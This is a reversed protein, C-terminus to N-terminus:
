RIMTKEWSARYAALYAEKTLQEPLSAHLVAKKEIVSSMVDALAQADGIPVILGNGGHKIAEGAIGVDTMIVPCGAAEAEIVTRGYGEYDSTLVFVDATKYYSALDDTWSEFIVNSLPSHRTALLKLKAEEPGSGVIILGAKPHKKVTEAMAALAMPINKEKTFRSAMLAVFDFQPYKTRLDIKVPADKIKQVDVFIPLVAIRSAHIKFCSAILSKKIRESVVRIGSARPILFKAIFVRIRNLLSERMFYPSFLDTHVQLQLSVHYRRAVLWGVVGTEFPDQVTILSDQPKFSSAQMISKAVVYADHVYFWKNRSHTPYVWVNESVHIKFHSDKLDRTTFVVIHLEDALAGYEAMRKQVDSGERVIGPDRSIM